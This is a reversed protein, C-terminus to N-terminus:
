PRDLYQATAVPGSARIFAAHKKLYDAHRGISTRRYFYTFRLDPYTSSNTLIDTPINPGAAGLLRLARSIDGVPVVRRWSTAIIVPFCSRSRSSSRIRGAPSACRCTRVEARTSRSGGVRQASQVPDKAAGAAGRHHLPSWSRSRPSSAAAAGPRRACRRLCTTLDHEPDPSSAPSSSWRSATGIGYEHDARRVGHAHVTGADAHGHNRHHRVLQPPPV